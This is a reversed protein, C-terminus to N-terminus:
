TVRGRLSRIAGGLLIAYPIFTLTLVTAFAAVRTPPKHKLVRILTNIPPLADRFSPSFDPEDHADPATAYIKEIYPILHPHFVWATLGALTLCVIILGIRLLSRLIISVILIIAVAAGAIVWTQETFYHYLGEELKSTPTVRFDHLSSSMAQASQRSGLRLQPLGDDALLRSVGAKVKKEADNNSLILEAIRDNGAVQLAKVFGPMLGDVFAIPDDSMREDAGLTTRYMSEGDCATACVLITLTLLFTPTNM